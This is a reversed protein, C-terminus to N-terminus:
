EVNCRPDSPDRVCLPTGADEDDTGADEEEPGADRAGFEGRGGGSEPLPAACGLAVLLAVLLLAVAGRLM